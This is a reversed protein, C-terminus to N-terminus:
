HTLLRESPKKLGVTILLYQVDSWYSWNNIYTLNIAVKDPYIVTNNYTVPDNSTALIEEEKRYKISAPGTIGPRISLLLRDAGKLKDAYGPVDPRPGVFSMDGKLVNWLQPLEDLKYKRFIRGSQTIRPDQDVTITTDQASPISGMSRIKYVDFEKGHQGIRTQSFVGSLGTEARAIIICLVILPCLAVLGILSLSLDFLRKIFHQKNSM